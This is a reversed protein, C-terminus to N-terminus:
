DGRVMTFFEARTGAAKRSALERAQAQACELPAIVGALLEERRAPDQLLADLRAAFHAKARDRGLCYAFGIYAGARITCRTV